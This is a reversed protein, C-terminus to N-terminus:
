KVFEGFVWSHMFVPGMICAGTQYRVYYWYNEWKNVKVKQKTRALLIVKTGAPIAQACDLKCPTESIETTKCYEKAESQVDPGNRLKATEKIRGTNKLVEVEVCPKEKSYELCRAANPSAPIKLNHYVVTSKLENICTLTQDSFISKPVPDFLCELFRGKEEINEDLGETEAKIRQWYIKLKNDSLVYRGYKNGSDEFGRWSYIAQDNDKFKLYHGSFGEEFGHRGDGEPPLDGDWHGETIKKKDISIVAKPEIISKNTGCSFFLFILSLFIKM